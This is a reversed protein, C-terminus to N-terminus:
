GNAKLELSTARLQGCQPCWVITRKRRATGKYRIGGAEWLSRTAGCTLCRLLWSESEARIAESWRKPLLNLVLKQLFTM